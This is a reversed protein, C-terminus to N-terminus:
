HAPFSVAHESQDSSAECGEEDLHVRGTSGASNDRDGNRQDAAVMGPHEDAGTNIEVHKGGRKIQRILRGYYSTDPDIATEHLEEIIRLLLAQNHELEQVRKRSHELADWVNNFGECKLPTLVLQEGQAQTQVHFTGDPYTPYTAM